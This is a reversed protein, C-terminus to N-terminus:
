PQETTQDRTASEAPPTWGADLLDGIIRCATAEHGLDLPSVLERFQDTVNLIVTILTEAHGIPDSAPPPADLDAPTDPINV